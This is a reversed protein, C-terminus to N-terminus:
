DAEPPLVFRFATGLVTVVIGVLVAPAFYVLSLMASLGAQDSSENRSAYGALMFLLGMVVFPVINLALVVPWNGRYAFMALWGAWFVGGILLLLIM